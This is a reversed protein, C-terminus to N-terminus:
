GRDGERIVRRPGEYGVLSQTRKVKVVGYNSRLLVGVYGLLVRIVGWYGGIM